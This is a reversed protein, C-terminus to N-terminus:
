RWQCVNTLLMYPIFYLAVNRDHGRHDVAVPHAAGVEARQQTLHVLCRTGSGVQHLLVPRVRAVTAERSATSVLLAEDDLTSGVVRCRLPAARTPWREDDVAARTGHHQGALDAGVASDSATTPRPPRTMARVVTSWTGTRSSACSPSEGPVSSRRRAAVVGSAIVARSPRSACM